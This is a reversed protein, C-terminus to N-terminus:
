KVEGLAFSPRTGDNFGPPQGPEVQNETHWKVHGDCFVYNAGGEHREWGRPQGYPYQAHYKHPDPAQLITITSAAEAFCVTTSPYIIRSSNVIKEKTIGFGPVTAIEINFAYGDIKNIYGKPSADKLQCKLEPLKLLKDSFDSNVVDTVSPYVEDYDAIYIQLGQGIQRLNSQCSSQYGKRRATTLAMLVIAALLGIIAIVVLIEILTFAIRKQM